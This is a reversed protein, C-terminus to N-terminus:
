LFKISFYRCSMFVFNKIDFIDSLLCLFIVPSCHTLSFIDLSNFMMKIKIFMILSKISKLFAFLDFFFILIALERVEIFSIFFLYCGLHWKFNLFGFLFFINVVKFFSLILNAGQDFFYLRCESLLLVLLFFDIQELFFILKFIVLPAFVKMAQISLLQYFSQKLLLLPGIPYLTLSISNCLHALCM